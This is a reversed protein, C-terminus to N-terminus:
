LTDKTHAHTQINNQPLERILIHILLKQPHSPQATSKRASLNVILQHSTVVQQPLGANWSSSSSSTLSLQQM